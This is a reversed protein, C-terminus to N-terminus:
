VQATKYYQKVHDSLAYGGGREPKIQSVPLAAEPVSKVSPLVSVAAALAGATGAGAFLTRRSLKSPSSPM